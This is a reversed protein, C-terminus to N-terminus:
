AIDVFRVVDEVRERQSAFRNGPHNEDPYGMVIGMVLKQDPSIGAHRRVVEPYSISRTMICTGLGRDTALLAITQLILGGDMLAYPNFGEDFHLYVACPAGFLRTAHLFYGARAKEDGRQIGFAQFLGKGLDKYRTTQAENFSLPVEVDPNTPAGRAALEACEEKIRDLTEGGVVTFRWPQTNGWSPARLAQEMIDEIMHRPVPAPRFVRISKRSAVAEKVDM